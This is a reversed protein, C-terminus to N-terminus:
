ASVHRITKSTLMATLAKIDSRCMYNTHYLRTADLSASLVVCYSLRKIGGDRSYARLRALM